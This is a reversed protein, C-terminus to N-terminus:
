QSQKRGPTRTRSISKSVAHHTKGLMEAIERHNFGARELLWEPKSYAAGGTMNQLQLLTLARLYKLMEEM